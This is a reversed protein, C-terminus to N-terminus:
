GSEGLARVVVIEQQRRGNVEIAGVKKVRFVEADIVM